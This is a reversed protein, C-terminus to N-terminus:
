GVFPKYIPFGEFFNKRPPLSRPDAYTTLHLLINGFITLLPFNKSLFMLVFISIFYGHCSERTFSKRCIKWDFNSWSFFILSFYTVIGDFVGFLGVIEGDVGDIRTEYFDEM